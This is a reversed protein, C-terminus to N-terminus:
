QSTRDNTHEKVKGACSEKETVKSRGRVMIDIRLAYLGSNVTGAVKRRIEILWVFDEDVAVSFSFLCPYSALRRNLSLVSRSYRLRCQSCIRAAHSFCMSFGPFRARYRSIILNCLWILPGVRPGIPNGQFNHTRLCAQTLSSSSQLDCTGTYEDTLTSLFQSRHM